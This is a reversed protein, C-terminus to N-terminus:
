AARAASWRRRRPPWSFRRVPLRHAVALRGRKQRRGAAVLQMRAFLSGNRRRRDHPRCARDGGCSRRIGASRRFRLVAHRFRRHADSLGRLRQRRPRDAPRAPCRAIGPARFLRIAEDAGTATTRARVYGRRRAADVIRAASLRTRGSRTRSSRKPGADGRGAARFNRSLSAAAPRKRRCAAGKM